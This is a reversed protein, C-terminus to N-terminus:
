ALQLGLDSEIESAEGPRELSPCNDCSHCVLDDTWYTDPFSYLRDYSHRQFRSELRHLQLGCFEIKACLAEV